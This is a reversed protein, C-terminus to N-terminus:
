YNRYNSPGPNPYAPAGGANPRYGYNYNYGNSAANQYQQPQQAAAQQQMAGQAGYNGQNMQPAYGGQAYSSMYAQQQPQYLESTSFSTSYSRDHGYYDYDPCPAYNCMGVRPTPAYRIPTSNAYHRPSHDVKVIRQL